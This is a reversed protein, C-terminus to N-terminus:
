KYNKKREDYNNVIGSEKINLIERTELSAFPNECVSFVTCNNDEKKCQNNAFKIAQILAQKDNKARINFEITVIYRKM